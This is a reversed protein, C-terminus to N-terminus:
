SEERDQNGSLPARGEPLARDRLLIVVTRAVGLLGALAMVGFAGAHFLKGALLADATLFMGLDAMWSGFAVDFIDRMTVAYRTPNSDTGGRM